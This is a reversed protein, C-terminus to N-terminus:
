TFVDLNRKGSSEDRGIMITPGPVPIAGKLADLILTFIGAKFGYTRLMNMTGPNGSGAKTIDSHLVNKSFIRAFNIAGLLYGGLILLIFKYVM